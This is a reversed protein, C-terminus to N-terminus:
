NSGRIFVFKRLYFLQSSLAITEVFTFGYKAQAISKLHKHTKFLNLKREDAIM